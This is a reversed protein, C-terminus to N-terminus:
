WIGSFRFSNELRAYDFESDPISIKSISVLLTPSSWIFTFYLEDITNKKDYRNVKVLVLERKTNDSFLVSGATFYESTNETYYPKKWWSYKLLEESILFDNSEKWKLNNELQIIYRSDEKTKWNNLVEIVQKYRKLVSYQKFALYTWHNRTITGNWLQALINEVEIYGKETKSINVCWKYCIIFWNDHKFIWEWLTTEINNFNWELLDINWPYHRDNYRIFSIFYKGDYGHYRSLIKFNEAKMYPIKYTEWLSYMDWLADAFYMDNWISFLDWYVKIDQNKIEIESKKTYFYNDDRLYTQIWQWQEQFIYESNDIVRIKWPNHIYPDLKQGALYASSNSIIYNEDIINYGDAVQIKDRTLVSCDQVMPMGWTYCYNYRIESGKICYWWKESSQISKCQPLGKETWFFIVLWIIWVIGILAITIKKNM